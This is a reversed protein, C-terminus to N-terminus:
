VPFRRGQRGGVSFPGDCDYLSPNRFTRPTNKRIAYAIRLVLLM